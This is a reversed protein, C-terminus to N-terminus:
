NKIEALRKRLLEWANDAVVAKSQNANVKIFREPQQTILDLYGQRVKNHFSIDELELRDKKRNSNKDAIRNLGIRAEVDLYITIDPMVSQIAFDNIMWINDMGIERGAGQYALSSDVFRDCLVVQGRNLAPIIKEVLHQRRSAAYLLAETRDDMESHNIDLILERIKEAIPSGGPERTHLVKQNFYNELKPVLSNIVTTKGAGDPGEISIFLGNM